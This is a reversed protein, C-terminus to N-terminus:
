TNYNQREKGNNKNQINAMFEHVLNETCKVQSRPQRCHLVYHLRSGTQHIVDLKWVISRIILWFWLRHTHKTWNALHCCWDPTLYTTEDFEGPPAVPALNSRPDCHNPKFHLWTVISNYVHLNMLYLNRRNYWLINIGAFSISYTKVPMPKDTHRHRDTVVIVLFITSPNTGFKIPLNRPPFPLGLEHKTVIPLPNHFYRDFFSLSQKRPSIYERLTSEM